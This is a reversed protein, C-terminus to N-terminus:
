VVFNSYRIAQSDDSAGSEFGELTTESSSLCRWPKDLGYMPSQLQQMCSEKPHNGGFISVEDGPINYMGPRSFGNFGEKGCDITGEYVGTTNSALSIYQLDHCNGSDPTRGAVLLQDTSHIIAPKSVNNKLHAILNWKRTKAEQLSHVDRVDLVRVDNYINKGDYGGILYIKGYQEVVGFNYYESGSKPNQFSNLYKDSTTIKDWNSNQTIIYTQTNGNHGFGSFVLTGVNKSYVVEFHYDGDFLSGSASSFLGDITMMQHNKNSSTDFDGIVELSNLQENFALGPFATSYPIIFQGNNVPDRGANLTYTYIIQSYKKTYMLFQGTMSNTPKECDVRCMFHNRYGCNEKKWSYDTFGKGLLRATACENGADVEDSWNTYSVDDDYCENLLVDTGNVCYLYKELPNSYYLSQWVSEYMNMLKLSYFACQDIDQNRISMLEGGEFSNCSEVAYPRDFTSGLSVGYWANDDLPCSYWSMGGEVNRSGPQKCTPEALASVALVTAYRLM